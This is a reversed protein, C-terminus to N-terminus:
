WYGRRPKSDLRLHGDTIVAECNLLGEQQAATVYTTLADKSHRM